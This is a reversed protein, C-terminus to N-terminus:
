FTKNFKNKIYKISTCMEILIFVMTEEVLNFSIM